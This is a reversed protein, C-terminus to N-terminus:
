QKMGLLTDLLKEITSVIKAAAGYSSQFKILNALEEDLNVGSTSQFQANISKHLAKDTANLATVSEAKSAIDGTLYRYYGSLTSTTPDGNKSYFKLEMNQLNVMENALENDGSVSSTGSVIKSSDQQLSSEVKINSAGNGEFFKSMGVVGAFNTGNDKISISYEGNAKLPNFSLKGTGLKEDYNFTAEFFDNVDNNLNGDNNDDTDSNFDSVISNGQTTDNFTTASNINITKKAVVEGDKNYVMVEFNGDSINQDFNQLTTNDKTNALENSYMSDQPGSAYINNTNIILTKAFTDLNQKFDTILGDTPNGDADSNRGRLDLMAGLKGGTIKANLNTRTGDNLEYYVSNFNNKTGNTDIKLPHFTVGNVISMGDITLSYDKGQDSLNGKTGYPQNSSDQKFVSVNVLKAMELELKDRSDKLDNAQQPQVSEVKQIQANLNAIQKGLDNIQDVATSIQENVNSHVKDLQAYTDNIRNTLVNSMNLLTTKQGAEYPHSALDNWAGFYNDMDRMLGQDKLDPFRQAIEQLVQKKYETNELNTFSNRLRNFSFEDHIRVITDVKVGMGIDGPITHFPTAASQVVKQRNYYESNVNTINHGTVQIQIQAANLGSVGTYLSDFIGM